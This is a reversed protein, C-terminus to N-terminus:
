PLLSRVFYHASWYTGLHGGVDRLGARRAPLVLISEDPARTSLRCLAMGWKSRFAAPRLRAM